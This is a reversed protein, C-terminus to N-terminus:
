PSTGLNLALRETTRRSSRRLATRSRALPNRAQTHARGGTVALHVKYRASAPVESRPAWWRTLCRRRAYPLGSGRSRSRDRVSLGGQLESASACCLGPALPRDGRAAARRHPALLARAPPSSCWHHPQLALGPRRVGRPQVSALRVGHRHRGRIRTCRITDGDQAMAVGNVALKPKIQM